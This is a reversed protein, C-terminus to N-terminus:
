RSDSVFGIFDTYDIGRNKLDQKLEVLRDEPTHYHGSKNSIRTIVGGRVEIEGAFLVDEGGVLSSHHFRKFGYDNSFYYDGNTDVVMIARGGESANTTDILNGDHDKLQVRGLQDEEFRVKYKDRDKASVSVVMNNLDFGVERNHLVKDKSFIETTVRLVDSAGHRIVGPIKTIGMGLFLTSSGVVGQANNDAFDSKIEKVGDKFGQALEHKYAALLSKLMRIRESNDGETKKWFDIGSQLTTIAEQYMKKWEDPDTIATATGAPAIYINEFAKLAFRKMYNNSCESSLRNKACAENAKDEFVKINETLQRSIELAATHPVKLMEPLGRKLAQPIGKSAGKMATVFDNAFRVMSNQHVNFPEICDDAFTIDGNLIVIAVLGIFIRISKLNM